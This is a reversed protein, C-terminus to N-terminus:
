KKLSNGSGIEAIWGDITRQQAPLTDLFAIGTGSGPKVYAVIAWSEFTGSDRHILIQIVTNKPLEDFKDIYCGKASIESTQAPLRPQTLPEIIKTRWHCVPYRPVSRREAFRSGADANGTPRAKRFATRTKNCTTTLYKKKM